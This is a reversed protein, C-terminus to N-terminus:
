GLFDYVSEFTFSCIWLINSIQLRLILGLNPRMIFHNRAYYISANDCTNRIPIRNALWRSILYDTLPDNLIHGM